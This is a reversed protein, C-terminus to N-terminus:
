AGAKKVEVLISNQGTQKSIPNPHRSSLTNICGGHDVRDGAMNADHWGGETLGVAGPIIRTTVKAAVRIEGQASVVAVTDGDAIGRKDADLPNIWVQRDAMKGLIQNNTYTSHTSRKTHFACVTLPYEDSLADPGDYGPLYTPVPRIVDGEPLEWTKAYKALTESYIEIKGSPTDLPNAKPDEIFPDDDTDVPMDEKYIGMEVFDDYEPFQPNDERLEDYLKHRQEERTLGGDSYEDYVGLRKALEGCVEYIERREFKPEYLPQGIWYGLSDNTEGAPSMTYTEQPTLDPLIIDAYKVSDTMVVDYSLIFECKTEDRLIDTTRNIDGNQNAMMNNGYNVLFKIGTKLKGSGKQIGANEATMKEGHDIVEPWLFNPFREEIPNDFEDISVSDFAGNGERMGSTTGPKGVQGVLLPLMIISAAATDGNTNRQPGWGQCIYCPDAEGIEIALQRIREAPVQTIAEAWEPTKEIKDYGDGMIYARYSTNPEASKPLTEEDFGVCYTHLFGLDIYNGEILEHAIAACLAGDTGPKIPIWEVDQNTAIESRRPDISIIRVHRQERAVNLDYGAGDGAMRTDAPANGFMVVLQGEQLTKFSRSGWSGGYIYPRAGFSLAGNSYNGYRDIIGGCLNFLRKFPSVMMYNQEVGSCEQVFVAENGYEKVIRQFENAITDLAEDWSIQEYKGEGRKTGEVRKLPYNLREPSNLWRRISRGRLCARAQFEGFEPSGTNDSEVWALEGNKMHCQLVCAGGCNVHCHTWIIEEEPETALAREPAETFFAGGALGGAAAIGGVAGAAKVFTRRSLATEARM